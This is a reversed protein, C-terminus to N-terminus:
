TVDRQPANSSSKSAARPQVLFGSPVSVAVLPTHCRPLGSLVEDLPGFCSPVTGDPERASVVPSAAPDNAFAL